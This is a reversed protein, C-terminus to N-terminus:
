LCAAAATLWEAGSRNVWLRILSCQSLIWCGHHQILWVVSKLSHATCLRWLTPYLLPLVSVSLCIFLCSGEMVKPPKTQRIPSFLLVQSFSDDSKYFLKLPLLKLNSRNNQLLNAPFCVASKHVQSHSAAAALWSIVYLSVLSCNEITM